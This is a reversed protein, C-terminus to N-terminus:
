TAAKWVPSCSGQCPSGHRMATRTSARPTVTTRLWGGGATAAVGAGYKLARRRSIAREKSEMEQKRQDIRSSDDVRVTSQRPQGPTGLLVALRERLASM